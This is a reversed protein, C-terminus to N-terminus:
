DCCALPLTSGCHPVSSYNVTTVGTPLAIAANTVGGVGVTFNSCPVNVDPDTSTGSYAYDLWAGAGPMSLLSRALRFETNNCLHSGPFEASCRGNAVTRSGIAGTSTFTTYGRLRVYSPSTCCALPLTSGCHPASSYNVTTVGTPLAIAANTVGGVGVTFNSCPVNVDPDNATGSYAYDLWAGASALPL